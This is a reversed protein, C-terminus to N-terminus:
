KLVPTHALYLQYQEVLEPNKNYINNISKQAIKNVRKKNSVVTTYINTYIDLAKIYNKEVGFGKQYCQGLILYAEDCGNNIATEIYKYGIDYDKKVYFGNLYHLGLFMFAYQQNQEAALFFWKYAEEYNKIIYQGFFYYKGIYVQSNKCNQEAALFFWKIAEEYKEKRDYYYGLDHQSYLDGNEANTIYEQLNKSNVVLEPDIEEQEDEKEEM